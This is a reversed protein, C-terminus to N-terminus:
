GNEIEEFSHKAFGPSATMGKGGIGTVLHIHKDITMQFVGAENEAQSYIGNWASEVTWKPLDVIEKAESLFFNNISWNVDFGLEDVASAPAYEHSDGLIVGGDSEQKLLLHIGWRKAFCDEPERSKVGSWSPCQSFSEYRRISRGTLLNGPLVVSGPPRLRLMQLKVARLESAAFREPYLTKFEHGSCLIAKAGLFSEGSSTRAVVKGSGAISLECVNTSFRSQFNAQEALYGLLRHIMLRPNISIEDPFFLGGRCYESRLAGVHNQCQQTTWLESTYQDARNIERLEELLGQEEDDSAIYLSGLQRISLDVHRQLDRYIALSERGFAQWHRNMGSPVIQGFNRVTAGKPATNRELLIVSRGHQLAAHAHFAGLAGGGIVLVDAEIQNKM